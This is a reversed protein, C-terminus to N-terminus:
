FIDFSSMPSRTGRCCFRTGQTSFLHQFPVSDASLGAARAACLAFNSLAKAIIGLISLPNKDM